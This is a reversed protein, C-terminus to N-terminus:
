KGFKPKNSYHSVIEKELEEAQEGNLFRGEIGMSNLLSNKLIELSNEKLLFNYQSETLIIKKM